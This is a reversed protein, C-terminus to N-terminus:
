NLVPTKSLRIGGGTAGCRKLERVETVAAPSIRGALGLLRAAEALVQDPAEMDELVVEEQATLRIRYMGVFVPGGTARFALSYKSSTSIAFNTATPLPGLSEGWSVMADRLAYNGPAIRWNAPLGGDNASFMRVHAPSGDGLRVDLAGSEHFLALPPLKKRPDNFGNACGDDAVDQQFNLQLSAGNEGKPIKKSFYSRFTDDFGVVAIVANSVQVEPPAAPGPSACGSLALAGVLLLARM